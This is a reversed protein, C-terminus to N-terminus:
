KKFTEQVRDTWKKCIRSQPDYFIQTWWRQITIIKRYKSFDNLIKNLIEDNEPIELVLISGRYEQNNDYKMVEHTEPLSLSFQGRNIGINKIKREISVWRDLMNTHFYEFDVCATEPDLIQHIIFRVNTDQYIDFKTNIVKFLHIPCPLNKMQNWNMVFKIKRLINSLDRRYLSRPTGFDIYHELNFLWQQIYGIHPYGFVNDQHQPFVPIRGQDLIRHASKVAIPYDGIERQILQEWLDRDRRPHFM